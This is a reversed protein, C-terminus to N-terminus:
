GEKLMFVQAIPDPTPFIALPLVPFKNHDLKIKLWVQNNVTTDFGNVTFADAPIWKPLAAKATTEAATQTAAGVAMSRAGNRAATLMINYTYYYTGYHAAGGVATALVPVVLAFEVAIAGARSRRLHRLVGRRIVTM